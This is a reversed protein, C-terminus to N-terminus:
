ITQFVTSNVPIVPISQKKYRNEPYMKGQSIFKLNDYTETECNYFDCYKRQFFGLANGIHEESHYMATHTNIDDLTIKKGPADIATMNNLVHEIFGFEQFNYITPTIKLDVNHQREFENMFSKLHPFSKSKEFHPQIIEFVRDRSIYFDCEYVLQADYMFSYLKSNLLYVRNQYQKSEQSSEDIIPFLNSDRELLYKCFSIWALACAAHQKKSCFLDKFFKGEVLMTLLNAQHSKVPCSKGTLKVAFLRDVATREVDVPGKFKVYTNTNAFMLCQMEYLEWLQTWFQKTSIPDNGTITKLEEAVLETLENIITAVYQAVDSRSLAESLNRFRVIKPGLLIQVLNCIYSKGVDRPGHLIYMKKGENYVLFTSAIMSLLNSLTERKFNCSICLSITEDVIALEFRSLNEGFVINRARVMNEKMAEMSTTYNFNLYKEHEILIEPMTINFAQNFISFSQCKSYCAVFITLFLCTRKSFAAVHPGKLTMLTELHSQKDHDFTAIDMIQEFKKVWDKSEVNQTLFIRECMTKYSSLTDYGNYNLHLYMMLYIVKPNFPYYEILFYLDDCKKCAMFIRVLQAIRCEEICLIKRMQILAPAILGHIYFSSCNNDFSKAFKMAVNLDELLKENQGLHINQEGEFVNWITHDRYKNFPLFRLINATFLGTASNFVGKPTAIMFKDTCFKLDTHAHTSNYRKLMEELCTLAVASPGIWLFTTRPLLSDYLKQHSAYYSNNRSIIYYKGSEENYSVLRLKVFINFLAYIVKRIKQRKSNGTLKEIESVVSKHSTEHMAACMLSNVQDNLSQSVKVNNVILYHLHKLIDFGDDTYAQFTSVNVLEIFTKVSAYDDNILNSYITQLIRQFLKFDTLDLFIYLAATFPQLYLGGHEQASITIFTACSEIGTSNSGTGPSKFLENFTEMFIRIKFRIADNFEEFNVNGINKNLSNYLQVKSTIYDSVQEMYSFEASIKVSQVNILCPLTEKFLKNTMKILYVSGIATEITAVTNGTIEISSFQFLEMYKGASEEYMTFAMMDGDEGQSNVIPTYPEGPVKASYPLPMTKPVEIIVIDTAFESSIRKALYLHTPLSVIANTYMHYGCNRKWINFTLQKVNINMVNKFTEIVSEKIKCILTYDICGYRQSKRCMCDLDLAFPRCYSLTNEITLTHGNASFSKELAKITIPKSLPWVYKTKLCRSYIITEPSRLNPISELTKPKFHNLFELELNRTTNCSDIPLIAQNTTVHNDDHIVPCFVTEDIITNTGRVKRHNRQDEEHEFEPAKRKNSSEM